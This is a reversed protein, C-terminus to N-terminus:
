VSETTFGRSLLIINNEAEYAIIGLDNGFFAVSFYINLNKLIYQDVYFKSTDKKLSEISYIKYMNRKM